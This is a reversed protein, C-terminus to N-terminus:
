NIADKQANNLDNGEDIGIKNDNEKKSDDINKYDDENKNKGWVKKGVIIIPGVCLYIILPIIIILRYITDNNNDKEKNEIPNQNKDEKEKKTNYFGIKRLNPNFIFKYKLIIPKGLVWINAYQSFLIRIFIYEGEEKLIQDTTLEFIYNFESSYFSISSLVEKLKNKTDIDNKCYYYEYNSSFDYFNNYGSILDKFCKKEELLVNINSNLYNKYEATGIVVNSDFNFEITENNYSIEKNNTKDIFYIKDFKMEWFILPSGQHSQAYYIDKSTYNNENIQHPLSGIIIKGKTSEWSDFDYYWCYDEIINKSKLISLFSSSNRYSEDYLSLGLVGTINDRVNRGLEFYINSESIKDNENIYEYFLFTDYSPCVQEALPLSEVEEQGKNKCKESSFTQSETEDFFKTFKESFNYLTKNSFNITKNIMPTSSSILFNSSKPNILLPIKQTPTGIEIETFFSNTLEQYIIGQPSNDQYKSLYNEKQLSNIPLVIYNNILNIEILFLFHFFLM